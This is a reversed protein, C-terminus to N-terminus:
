TDPPPSAHADHDTGSTPRSARPPIAETCITTVRAVLPVRTSSPSGLTRASSCGAGGGREVARPTTSTTSPLVAALVRPGHPPGCGARSSVATAEEPVVNRALRADLERAFAVTADISV